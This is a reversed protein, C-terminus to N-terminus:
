SQYNSKNSALTTPWSGSRKKKEKKKKCGQFGENAAAAQKEDSFFSSSLVSLSGLSLFWLYSGPTFSIPNLFCTLTDAGVCRQVGCCSRGSFWWLGLPRGVSPPATPHFLLASIRRISFWDASVLPFVKKYEKKQSSLSCSGTWFRHFRGNKDLISPSM